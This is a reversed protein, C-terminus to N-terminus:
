VLLHRAAAPQQQSASSGPVRPTCNQAVLPRPEGRLRKLKKAAAIAAAPEEEAGAAVHTGSSTFIWQNLKRDALSRALQPRTHREQTLRVARAASAMSVM